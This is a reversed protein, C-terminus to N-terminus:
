TFKNRNMAFLEIQLLKWVTLNITLIIHDHRSWTLTKCIKMLEDLWIHILNQFMQCIEPNRNTISYLYFCCLWIKIGNIVKSGCSSITKIHQLQFNAFRSFLWLPDSFTKFLFNFIVLNGITFKNRFVQRDDIFNLFSYIM